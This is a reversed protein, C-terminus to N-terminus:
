RKSKCLVASDLGCVSEIGGSGDFHTVENHASLPDGYVYAYTNFGGVIGLGM